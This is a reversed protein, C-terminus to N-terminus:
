PHGSAVSFKAERLAVIDRQATAVVEREADHFIDIDDSIRPRDVNLASGGAVYSKEDRLNGLIALLHKQLETLM